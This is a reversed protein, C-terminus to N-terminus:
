NKDWTWINWGADQTWARKIWIRHKLVVSEIEYGNFVLCITHLFKIWEQNGESNLKIQYQQKCVPSYIIAKGYKQFIVLLKLLLLEDQM